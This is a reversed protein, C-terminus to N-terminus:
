HGHHMNGLAPSAVGATELAVIAFLKNTQKKAFVPAPSSPNEGVDACFHFPQSELAPTSNLSPIRDIESIFGLLLGFNKGGFRMKFKQNCSFPTEEENM